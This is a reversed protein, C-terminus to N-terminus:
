EACAPLYLQFKNNKLVPEMNQKYEPLKFIESTYMSQLKM